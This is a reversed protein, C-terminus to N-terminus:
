EKEKAVHGACLMKLLRGAVMALPFQYVKASPRTRDFTLVYVEIALVGVYMCLM